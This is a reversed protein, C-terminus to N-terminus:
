RLVLRTILTPVMHQLWVSQENRKGEHGAGVRKRQAQMEEQAGRM